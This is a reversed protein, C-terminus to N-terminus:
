QLRQYTQWRSLRNRKVNTYDISPLQTLPEGILFYGHSLYTQNFPDDYLTCSPRSNLCVEIEALLTTLEQYTAVHIGLTKRLRYKMFKV